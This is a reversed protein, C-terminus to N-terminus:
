ERSAAAPARPEADAASPAPPVAQVTAGDGAHGDGGGFVEDALYYDYPGRTVLPTRQFNHPSPPSTANTWELTAAAWPNAPAKEGWALSHIWTGLVLFLGAALIWSGVTSVQHLTEFGAPYDYYRRPMGQSGLIFQVFFTVNFGIFILAAAIKGATENYMKGTIKPWWYHMGGLLAIMMGGMMVYHFHAVVFYTDHLHVDVSLVGVM